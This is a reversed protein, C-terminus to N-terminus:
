SMRAIRSSRRKQRQKQPRSRRRAKEKASEPAGHDSGCRRPMGPLAEAHQTPSKQDSSDTASM